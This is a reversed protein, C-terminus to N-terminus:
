LHLFVKECAGTKIPNARYKLVVILNLTTELLYYQISKRTYQKSCKCTHQSIRWHTVDPAHVLSGQLSSRQALHITSIWLTYCLRPDPANYSRVPYESLILMHNISRDMRTAQERHHLLRQNLETHRTSQPKHRHTETRLESVKSPKTRGAGPLWWCVIRLERSQQMTRSNNPCQRSCNQFAVDTNSM